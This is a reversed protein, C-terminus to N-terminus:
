RGLEAQWNLVITVPTRETDEAVVDILFRRGDDSVDYHFITQPLIPNVEPAQFLMSPAGARFTEGAQIDAAMVKNDVTM